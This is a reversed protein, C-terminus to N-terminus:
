IGADALRKRLSQIEAILNAIIEPSSYDMAQMEAGDKTGTAVATRSSKQAEHALLGVFVSGDSKWTGEVPKLSDIYAGSTTIPGTIDKLRYDSSTNYAVTTTGNHTISGAVNGASNIFYAYIGGTDATNDILAIGQSGTSTFGVSIKGDYVKSVTGVLLDGGSTIRARENLTPGATATYFGLASLNSGGADNIAAIGAPWANGNQNETSLLLRAGFTGDTSGSSYARLMAVDQVGTTAAVTINTELKYGPSSTGIGLNGSSGNVRFRESSGVTFVMDSTGSGAYISSAAGGWRIPQGTDLDIQGGNVDVVGDVTVTGVVNLKTTPTTTGIGLNGSSDFRAAEVGGETFAITDAAPFYIGTNTDGTTTISPAAASGASFTTVGTVAISGISVVQSADISIATTPVAGTQLVLTGTTDSTVKFATNSTTSASITSM